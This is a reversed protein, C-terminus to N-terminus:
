RRGDRQDDDHRDGFRTQHGSIINVQRDGYRARLLDRSNQESASESRDRFVGGVGKVTYTLEYENM